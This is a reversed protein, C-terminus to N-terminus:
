SVAVGSSTDPQSVEDWTLGLIWLLPLLDQREPLEVRNSSRLKEIMQPSTMGCLEALLASTFKTENIRRRLLSLGAHDKKM